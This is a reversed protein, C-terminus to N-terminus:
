VFPSYFDFCVRTIDLTTFFAMSTLYYLSQRPLLPPDRDIPIEFGEGEVWWGSTLLPFLTFERWLLNCVILYGDGVVALLVLLLSFFHCLAM